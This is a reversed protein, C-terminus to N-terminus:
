KEGTLGKYSKAALQLAEETTYREYYTCRTLVRQPSAHGGIVRVLAFGLMPDAIFDGVLALTATPHQRHTLITSPITVLRVTGIHPIEIDHEPTIPLVSIHLQAHDDGNQWLIVEQQLVYLLYNGKHIDKPTIDTILAPQGDVEDIEYSVPDLPGSSVAMGPLLLAFNDALQQKSLYVTPSLTNLSMFSRYADVGGEFYTHRTAKLRRWLINNHAIQERLALQKRSLRRPQRIHSPRVFTKGGRKYITVDGLHGEVDKLLGKTIEAM